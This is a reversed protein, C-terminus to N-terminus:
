RTAKGCVEVCPEKGVKSPLTQELPNLLSRVENCNEKVPIFQKNSMVILCHTGPGFYTKHHTSLERISSIRNAHLDIHTGNPATLHILSILAIYIKMM